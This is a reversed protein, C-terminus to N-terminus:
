DGAQPTWMGYPTGPTGPPIKGGGKGLTQVPTLWQVHGDVFLYNWGGSHWPLTIGPYQSASSIQGYPGPACFADGGMSSDPCGCDSFYVYDYNNALGPREAVMITGPVDEIAASNVGKGVSAMMGKTGTFNDLRINMAYSRPFETPNDTDIAHKLRDTPCHFIMPWVHGQPDTVNVTNHGSMYPSVLRDFSAGDMGPAARASPPIWGRFDDEYMQIALGIQKLNSACVAANAKERARNLAPLLMAALIGIIAIVVLLEILTFAAPAHGLPVTGFRPPTRDGDCQGGLRLRITESEVPRKDTGSQMGEKQCIVSLTGPAMGISPLVSPALDVPRSRRWNKTNAIGKDTRSCEERGRGAGVSKAAGSLDGEELHLVSM